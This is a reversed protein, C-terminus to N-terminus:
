TQEDIVKSITLSGTTEDVEISVTDGDKLGAQDCIEPPINFIVNDPDGPIDEFIDEANYTKIEKM